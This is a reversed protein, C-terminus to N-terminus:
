GVRREELRDRIGSVAEDLGVRAMRPDYGRKGDSGDLDYEASAVEGTRLVEAIIERAPEAIAGPLVSRFLM